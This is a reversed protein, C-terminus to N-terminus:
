LLGKFFNIILVKFNSLDRVTVVIVLLMLLAFGATHFIQEVKQSVPRRRIKAIALFLLRGGDLAPIPLINFIALNLSLMATFQILYIIGLRAVRGTLVAIGVPGSVAEGVGAGTVLGSILYYFAVTIEKLYLGTAVIGYYIAKFFSYKVTGIEAISIGFGSKGTDSYVAPKIKKEITQEGRQVKLLIEKDKQANVYNQMQTLRPSVIEDVQLVVDGALIGAAEAPKGPLVGLIEIRRERVQSVDAMQDVTQPLGILYGLSLLVAALVVNMAVGAFLVVAKQWPKKAAFSQPDSADEGNEGKIKVFGGLPLWNFSYVTGYAEDTENLGRNGWVFRWKRTETVTDYEKITDTITEKLIEGGAATPVVEDKIEVTEVEAIKEIKKEKLFQIGLFRPPFGFGFEEVKMGTKKAAIFHGFEHSLVLIALVIIFFLLSSM